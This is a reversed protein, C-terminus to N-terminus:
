DLSAVFARLQRISRCEVVRDCWPTYRGIVSDGSDWAARPEPNLWYVHASAAAIAALAEPHPEHYNSRADGLVLVTSRKSLQGATLERFSAFAHGYDSRGDLWVGSARANIERTAALIDDSAALVDTVEDVGDVFVFSRVAAFETRLAYALQLTFSAFAAVSGSIDALVVLQPKAPRQPRFVPEAAVGGTSMSARITRRFDLVGRSRRRRKTQLRAALKRALPQVTEGLVAADRRATRLFDLDEPLPQRLTRAVAAAGRDAVLRRRIEAEVERGVRRVDEEARERALRRGLAGATAGDEPAAGGGEADGVLSALVRDGGIARMTRLQYLTGAVARGAEFGAHRDVFGAVALRILGLDERRVADVLVERLRDDPLGSLVGGPVGDASGAAVASSGPGGHQEGDGAPRVAFCIDFVLDFTADHASDKVLTTRLAARVTERDLVDVAALSRAADVHESLAVPIGTARLERVLGDLVTLM